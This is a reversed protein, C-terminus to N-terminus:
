CLLLNDRTSFFMCHFSYDNAADNLTQIHVLHNIIQVHIYFM